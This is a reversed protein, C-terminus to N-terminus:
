KLLKNFPMEVKRVTGTKKHHVLVADVGKIKKIEWEEDWVAYAKDDFMIMKDYKGQAHLLFPNNFMSIPQTAIPKIEEEMIKIRDTTIYDKFFMSLGLLVGFVVLLTKKTHHLLFFKFGIFIYNVAEETTTAETLTIDVKKKAM